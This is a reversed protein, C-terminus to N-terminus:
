FLSYTGVFLIFLFNGEGTLFSVPSLFKNYIEYNIKHLHDSLLSSIDHDDEIIMIKYKM